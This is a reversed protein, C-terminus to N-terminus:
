FRTKAPAWSLKKVMGRAPQHQYEEAWERQFLNFANELHKIYTEDDKRSRREVNVNVSLRRHRKHPHDPFNSKKREFSPRTVLAHNPLCYPTTVLPEFDRPTWVTRYYAPQEDFASTPGTLLPGHPEPFPFLTLDVDSENNPLEFDRPTWVTSPYAPVDPTYRTLFSDDPELLLDHPPESALYSALYEDESVM